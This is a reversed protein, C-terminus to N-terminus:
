YHHTSRDNGSKCLRHRSGQKASALQTPWIARVADAAAAIQLGAFHTGSATRTESAGSLHLKRSATFNGTICASQFNAGCSDTGEVFSSQADKTFCKILEAINQASPESNPCGSLSSAYKASGVVVLNHLAYSSTGYQRASSASENANAEAPVVLLLDKAFVVNRVASTNVYEYPIYVIRGDDLSNLWNVLTDGTISAFTNDSDPVPAIRLGSAAAVDGFAQQTASNSPYVIQMGSSRSVHLAGLAVADQVRSWGIIEHGSRSNLFGSSTYDDRYNSASPSPQRNYLLGGVPNFLCGISLMGHGYTADVGPSGLDEACDLLLDKVDTLHMQPWRALVADAAAAVQVAAAATDNIDHATGSLTVGPQYWALLCHDSIDITSFSDGCSNASTDGTFCSALNDTNCNNGPSAGAVFLFRGLQELQDADASGDNGTPLVILLDRNVSLAHLDYSNANQAALAVLSGAPVSSLQNLIENELTSSTASGSWSWHASQGTRLAYTALVQELSAAHSLGGYGTGHSNALLWLRSDSSATVIGPNYTDTSATVLREMGPIPRLGSGSATYIATSGYSPAPPAAYLLGGVPNFLCATSALGQGWIADAGPSGADLACHLLLDRVKSATDLATPWLAKLSDAAAAVQLGAYRTGNVSTPLAGNLLRPTRSVSFSGTLCISKFAEGCNDTGETGPNAPDKTLCNVLASPDGPEGTPCATLSLDYTASGVVLLNDLATNHSSTDLQAAAELASDEDAEAPVVLLINKVLAMNTVASTNAHEYPLYAISGDALGALWSALGDVNVVETATAIRLANTTAIDGLRQRVPDARGDDTPTAIQLGSTRAITRAGLAVLDRLRATGPLENSLMDRHYGTATYDNSYLPTTATEPINGYTYLFGDSPRFLCAVSLVGRGFVPNTDNTGDGDHDLPIACDLLLQKLEGIATTPWLALVTDAMAAVQAAATSTATVPNGTSGDTGNYVIGPQYWAAICHQAFFDGCANARSDHRFCSALNSPDCDSAADIGTVFIFRGLQPLQAASTEGANGTALVPLLNRNVSLAHFFSHNINPFPLLLVTKDSDLAVAKEILASDWLSVHTDQFLAQQYSRLGYFDLSLGVTYAHSRGFFSANADDITILALRTDNQFRHPDGQYLSKLRELGPIEAPETAGAAPANYLPTNHYTSVITPEPTPFQTYLVGGAPNFLCDLSALGHGWRADIAPNGADLACDLLLTRLKDASDLPGPWLSLLADAATAIQLAAYRTGSVTSHDSGDVSRLLRGVTFNGTLCISQFDLGCDDTGETSADASDKRYCQALDAIATATTLGSDDSPCGSLSADFRASGVVLLNDLAASHTNTDLQVASDTARDADGEAPVVLLLNKASAKAIVAATNANEYPIYAISGDALGDLWSALGGVGSVETAGPLRLSQVAAVDGLRQVVPDASGDSVPTALQLRSGLPTGSGDLAGTLAGLAVAGQLRDWGILATGNLNSRLGSYRYDNRYSAPASPASTTLLGGSPEFLCGISLMGVGFTSNTDATGDADDDLAIACGLVIEKLTVMGTGPWRAVVADAMAAVQAAAYETGSLTASSDGPDVVGSDYWAVLCHAMFAEGCADARTDREFCSALDTLDCGSDAAIGSVFLARGLFRQVGQADTYGPAVSQNAGSGGANGSPLTLLLDRNVALANLDGSAIGTYPLTVIQTGSLAHVAALVATGASAVMVTPSRGSLTAANLVATIQQQQASDGGFGVVLGAGSSLASPEYAQVLQLREWGPIETAGGRYLPTSQYPDATPEPTPFQTYLM